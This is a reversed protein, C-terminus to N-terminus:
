KNLNANIKISKIKHKFINKNSHLEFWLINYIEKNYENLKVDRFILNHKHEKNILIVFVQQIFIKYIKYCIEIQIFDQM